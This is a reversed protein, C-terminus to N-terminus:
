STRERSRGQIAEAEAWVSRSERTKQYMMLNDVTLILYLEFQFCELFFNFKRDDTRFRGFHLIFYIYIKQFRSCCKAFDHCGGGLLTSIGFRIGLFAGHKVEMWSTKEEEGAVEM